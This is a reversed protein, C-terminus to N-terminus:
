LVVTDGRLVDTFQAAIEEVGRRVGIIALKLQLKCKPVAHPGINPDLKHLSVFDTSNNFKIARSFSVKRKEVASASHPGQPEKRTNESANQRNFEQPLVLQTM